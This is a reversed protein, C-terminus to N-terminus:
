IGLITIPILSNFCKSNLRGISVTVIRPQNARNRIAIVAYDEAQHANHLPTPLKWIASWRVTHLYLFQEIGMEEREMRGDGGNLCNGVRRVSDELVVERGKRLDGSLRMTELGMGKEM